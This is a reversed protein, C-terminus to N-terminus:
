KRMLLEALAGAARQGLDTLGVCIQGAYHEDCALGRQTIDM